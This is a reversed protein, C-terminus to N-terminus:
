RPPKQAKKHGAMLLALHGAWAKALTPNADLMQQGERHLREAKEFTEVTLDTGVCWPRGRRFIPALAGKMTIKNSVAKQIEVALWVHLRDGQNARPRGGKQTVPFEKAVGFRAGRELYKMMSIRCRAIIARRTNDDDAYKAVGDACVKELDRWYEIDFYIHKAKKPSSM